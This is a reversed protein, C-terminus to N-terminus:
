ETPRSGLAHRADGHHVGGLPWEARARQVFGRSLDPILQVTRGDAAVLKLGGAADRFLWRWAASEGLAKRTAADFWDFVRRLSGPMTRLVVFDDAVRRVDALSVVPRPPEGIEAAPIGQRGAGSRLRQRLETEKVIPLGCEAALKRLVDLRREGIRASFAEHAVIPTTDTEAPEKGWGFPRDIFVATGLEALERDDDLDHIAAQLLAKAASTLMVATPTSAFLQRTRRLHHEIQERPPAASGEPMIRAADGPSTPFDPVLHGEYSRRLIMAQRVARRRMKTPADDGQFLQPHHESFRLLASLAADLVLADPYNAGRYHFMVLDYATLHRCLQRLLWGVFDTADSAALWGREALIDIWQLTREVFDTYPSLSVEEFMRRLSPILDRPTRGMESWAEIFEDALTETEEPGISRLLSELLKSEEIPALERSLGMALLVRWHLMPRSQLEEPLGSRYAYAIQGLSFAPLPAEVSTLPLRSTGWIAQQIRCILEDRFEEESSLDELRISGVLERVWRPAEAGEIVNSESEAHWAQMLLGRTVHISKSEADLLVSLLPDDLQPTQGEVSLLNWALFHRTTRIQRLDVLHGRFTEWPLEQEAEFQWALKLGRAVYFHGPRWLETVLSALSRVEAPLPTQTPAPSRFWPM